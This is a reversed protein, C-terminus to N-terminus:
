QRTNGDFPTSLLPPRVGPSVATNMELDVWIQKRSLLYDKLQEGDGQKQGFGNRVAEARQMARQHGFEQELAQYAKWGDGRCKANKVVLVADGGISGAIYGYMRALVRVDGGEKWEDLWGDHHYLLSDIYFTWEDWDKQSRLRSAKTSVSTSQTTVASSDDDDIGFKPPM